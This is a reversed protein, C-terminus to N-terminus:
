LRVQTPKLFGRLVALSDWLLLWPSPRQQLLVACAFASLRPCFFPLSASYLSTAPTLFSGSNSILFIQTAARAKAEQQTVKPLNGGREPGWDKRRMPSILLPSKVADGSSSDMTFEQACPAPKTRQPELTKFRPCRSFPQLLFFPPFCPILGDTFSDTTRGTVVPESSSLSSTSFSSSEDNRTPVVKSFPKAADLLTSCVSVLM